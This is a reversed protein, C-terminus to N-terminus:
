ARAPAPATSSREVLAAAVEIVGASEGEGRAILQEVARSV